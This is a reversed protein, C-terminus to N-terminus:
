LMSADPTNELLDYAKKVTGRMAKTPDAFILDTGFSLMTARRELSTYSPGILLIRYVKLAAMFAMSIRMNGSTHEVLVTKGPTILRKEEIDNMMSLAPRTYWNIWIEKMVHCQM